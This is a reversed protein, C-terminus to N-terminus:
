NTKWTSNQAKEELQGQATLRRGRGGAYTPNCAHEVLATRIILFRYGDYNSLFTFANYKFILILAQDQRPTSVLPLPFIYPFPTSLCIPPFRICEHIFISFYIQQFQEPFPSPLFILIISPHVWSHYITLVKTFTV